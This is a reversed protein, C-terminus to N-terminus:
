DRFYGLTSGAASIPDCAAVPVELFLVGSIGLLYAFGFCLLFRLQAESNEKSLSLEPKPFGIHTALLLHIVSSWWGGHTPQLSLVPATPPPTRPDAERPGVASCVPLALFLLRGGKVEGAAPKLNQGILKLEGLCWPLEAKKLCGPTLPSPVQFLGPYCPACGKWNGCTHLPM